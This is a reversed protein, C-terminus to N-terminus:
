SQSTRPCPAPRAGWNENQHAGVAYDPVGDGSVDGLGAVTYGFWDGAADGEYRHLILEEPVPEATGAILVRAEPPRPPCHPATSRPASCAAGVLGAACLWLHSRPTATRM